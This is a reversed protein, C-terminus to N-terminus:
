PQVSKDYHAKGGSIAMIVASRVPDRGGAFSLRGTVGTFNRTAALADRVKERDTSGARRMADALLYVADYALAEPADAPLPGRQYKRVFARSLPSEDEAWWQTSFYAQAIDRGGRDFFRETGWGDGGLPITSSGLNMIAKIIVASEWYGPIFVVDPSLAKVEAAIDSFNPQNMKYSLNRTVRGGAQRFNMEFERSLGIAYDSTLDTITIATRARLGERAFHAMVKGQFADSFCMRFICDGVRTIEGNTSITSILPTRSAQAIPAMALTHSSWAAGIIATVQNRVANEAAIKAGIPTSLDDLEILELKRGLVGGRANLEEAAERAGQISFANDDAAVGTHAFISAVRIPAEGRAAAGAGCLLAACCLWAGVRGRLPGPMAGAGAATM